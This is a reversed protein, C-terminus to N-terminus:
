IRNQVIEQDASSVGCFIHEGVARNSLVFRSQEGCPKLGGEGSAPEQPGAGSGCDETQLVVSRLSSVQSQLQALANEGPKKYTPAGPGVPPGQSFVPRSGRRVFIRLKL